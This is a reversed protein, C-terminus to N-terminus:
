LRVTDFLMVGLLLPHYLLSYLFVRRASETTLDAAARSAVFVFGLGLLTALFLYPRGTLGLATPIWSVPVLLSTAV